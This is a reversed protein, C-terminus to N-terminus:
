PPTGLYADVVRPDARISEPLGSAIVSGENMVVVRDSARMVGDLDHEVLLFTVGERERLELVHELLQVRLTPNVGAMPEDLLLLRPGTMVARAFDLLKRQGGSLTAALADAHGDLRVLALLEDARARASQERRRVRGPRLITLPLREGPHRAAGVLLNERVTLRALARPTQFTRVLGARAIAYAPRRDIRREDLLVRGADARLFGSVVNFLTSKGAGNPGILSTISGEEVAFSAGDVASVGGFRRVLSDVELLASM